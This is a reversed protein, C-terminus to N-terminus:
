VLDLGIPLSPKSLAQRAHALAGTEIRRHLAPLDASAAPGVTLVIEPANGDGAHM